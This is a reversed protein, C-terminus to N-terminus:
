QQAGISRLTSADELKKVITQSTALMGRVISQLEEGYIPAIQIGIQKAETLFAPDNMTDRFAQRLIAVQEPPVGPGVALPRGLAIGASYLALIQRQQPDDTVETLLPVDPLDSARASGIQVLVNLWHNKVWNPRTQKWGDWSQGARGFVEGREIAIDIDNGGRYGTVPQFKAGVVNDALAVEIGGSSGASTIGILVPKKLADAFTKVPAPQSTVIVNVSAAPNGIWQFQAADFKADAGLSLQSQVLTQLVAVIVTGDRPAVNYVYNAATMSGAGQMDQVLIQPNGPIHQPLYRAVLRAHIDYSGGPDAGVIVRIQKNRYFDDARAAGSAAALALLGLAVLSSKRNPM